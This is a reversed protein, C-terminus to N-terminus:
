LASHRAQHNTKVTGSLNNKQWHQIIGATHNM